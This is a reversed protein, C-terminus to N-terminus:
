RPPTQLLMGQVSGLIMLRSTEALELLREAEGDEIKFLILENLGAIVALVLDPKLAPMGPQRAREEEYLGVLLDSFRQVVERKARMGEDGLKLIDIYLRKMLPAQGQMTALYAATGREIRELMPLGPQEVAAQLVALVRASNEKYLALFCAEKNSFHEYFTRKSVSAARAIDDTYLEALSLSELAQALGALIRSRHDKPDIPIPM